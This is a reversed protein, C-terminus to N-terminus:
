DNDKSNLKYVTIQSPEIYNAQYVEYDNKGWKEVSLVKQENETEFDWYYLRKSDNEDGYRLFEAENSDDYHYKEGNYEVQGEEMEDIKDLDEKSVSIDKLKMKNRTVAILLEDDEEVEIWVKGSESEGELEFWEDNGCRYVHKGIINADFEELDEGIHTLHIMGGKDVNEIRLEDKSYPKNGQNETEKLAQNKKYFYYIVGGIILLLVITLFGGM